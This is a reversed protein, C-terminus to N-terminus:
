RGSRRQSWHDKFGPPHLPASFQTLIEDTLSHQLLQGGFPDLVALGEEFGQKEVLVVLASGRPRLGSRLAGLYEDALGTDIWAVSSHGPAAAAATYDVVDLSEGLRALLAGLIAGFLTAYRPDVHGTEFLFAEGAEDRVLVASNLVPPKGPDSRKKLAQLAQSARSAGAFLLALLELQTTPGDREPPTPTLAM